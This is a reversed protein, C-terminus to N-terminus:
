DSVARLWREEDDKGVSREREPSSAQKLEWQLRRRAVPNLGFRDELLRIEVLARYGGEGRAARDVLGALRALAPVDADLYQEAVPSSWVTKWWARTTPLLDREATLAPVKRKRPEKPLLVPEPAKNRRRRSGPPKPPPGSM